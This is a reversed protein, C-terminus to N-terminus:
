SITTIKKLKPNIQIITNVKIESFTKHGVGIVATVNLESCRITMHSNSGGYMTILGKIKFGFIYDYGPDANEILIIKNDLDKNEHNQSDKLKIVKAQTGKGAGPPGFLVINKM